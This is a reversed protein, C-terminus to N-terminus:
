VVLGSWVLMERTEHSFSDCYDQKVCVLILISGMCYSATGTKIHVHTLQLIRQSSTM